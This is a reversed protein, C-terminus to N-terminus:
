YPHQPYFWPTNIVGKSNGYYYHSAGDLESMAEIHGDIFLFNINGRHRFKTLLPYM